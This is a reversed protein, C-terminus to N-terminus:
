KTQKLLLKIDERMEKNDERNRDDMEKMAKMVRDESAQIKGPIADISKTNRDINKTQASVTGVYIGYTILISAAAGIIGIALGGWEAPSIRRDRFRKKEPPM